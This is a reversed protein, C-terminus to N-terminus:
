RRVVHCLAAQTVHVAHLEDMLFMTPEDDVEVVHVTARTGRRRMGHM